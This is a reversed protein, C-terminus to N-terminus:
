RLTTPSSMLWRRSWRPRPGSAHKRCSPSGRRPLACSTWLSRGGRCRLPPHWRWCPGSGHWPRGRMGGPPSRGVPAPRGRQASETAAAAAACLARRRGRGTQHAVECAHSQRAVVTRCRYHESKVTVAAMWLTPIRMYCRETARRDYLPTEAGPTWESALPVRQRCRGRPPPTGSARPECTVTSGGAGCEQAAMLSGRLAGWREAIMHVCPPQNWDPASRRTADMRACPSGM